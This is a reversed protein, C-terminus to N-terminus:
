AASRRARANLTRQLLGMEVNGNGTFILNKPADDIRFSAGDIESNFGRHWASWFHQSDGWGLTDEDHSAVCSVSSPLSM